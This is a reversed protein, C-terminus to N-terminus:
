SVERLSGLALVQVVQGTIESVRIDSDKASFVLVRAIISSSEVM